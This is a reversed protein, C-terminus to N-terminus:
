AFNAFGVKGEKEKRFLKPILLSQDEGLFGDIFYLIVETM